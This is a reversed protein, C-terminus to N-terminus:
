LGARHPNRLFDYEYNGRKKLVNCPHLKISFAPAYEGSCGKIFLPAKIMFQEPIRFCMNQPIM